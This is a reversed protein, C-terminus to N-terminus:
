GRGIVESLILEARSVCAFRHHLLNRVTCVRIHRVEELFWLKKTQDREVMFGSIYAFSFRTGAPLQPLLKRQFEAIAHMTYDVSVHRITKMDLNGPTM